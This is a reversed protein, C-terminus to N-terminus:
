FWNIANHCCAGIYRIRMECVITSCREAVFSFTFKNIINMLIHRMSQCVIELQNRIEQVIEKSCWCILHITMVCVDFGIMALTHSVHVNYVHFCIFISLFIFSIAYIQAVRVWKIWIMWIIKWIHFNIHADNQFLLRSKTARVWRVRAHIIKMQIRFEMQSPIFDKGVCVCM